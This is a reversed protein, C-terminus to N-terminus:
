GSDEADDGGSSIKEAAIEYYAFFPGTLVQLIEQCETGAVHQGDDKDFNKRFRNAEGPLARKEVDQDTEKEDMKEFVGHRRVEMEAFFSMPFFELVSMGPARNEETKANM